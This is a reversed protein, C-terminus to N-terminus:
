FIPRERLYRAFKPVGNNTYGNFRFTVTTGIEPPKLRMEDTFGSGIYFETGENTKVLISGMKGKYKGTGSKYGIVLAEADQHKKLKLLDNSRGAQYRSSVKRLMLGEGRKQSVNNLQEFLEEETKIPTHEIYKVHKKHLQEVLSLINYYRKQYDGAADPMDFLMIDIRRWAADDPKKDLVTQQVLHFNGRGAWLEGELRTNPFGETFWEPANIPNGHQTVLQQGTWLARIGDLKESKWYESVNIDQQYQNASIIQVDQRDLVEAHTPFALILAIAFVNLKLTTVNCTKM